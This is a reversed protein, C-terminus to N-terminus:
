NRILIYRRRREKMGRGDDFEVLYRFCDRNVRKDKGTRGGKERWEEAPWWTADINICPNANFVPWTQRAIVRAFVRWTQQEVNLGAPVQRVYGGRGTDVSALFTALYGLRPSSTTFWSPNPVPKDWSSTISIYIYTYIVRTCSHSNIRIPLTHIPDFLFSLNTLPTSVRTM